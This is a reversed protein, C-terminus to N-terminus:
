VFDPNLQLSVRSTLVPVVPFFLSLSWHVFYFATSHRMRFLLECESTRFNYYRTLDKM